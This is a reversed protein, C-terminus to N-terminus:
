LVFDSLNKLHHVLVREHILKQLQVLDRHVFIDQSLRNRKEDREYIEQPIVERVANYALQTGVGLHFAKQFRRLDIGQTACLLECALINEINEIISRAQRAAISGMSVHDEQNASTPITTVSAPSSLTQNEASLAAATIQALGLGYHVGQNESKPYLLLLPLGFSLHNDILRAIRREALNGVSTMATSLLDMAIAIPQGHFNGGSLFSQSEPFILPNDTASNLEITVVNKVYDTADRAAGLVQPTCRLSYADQVRRTNKVVKIAADLLEKPLQLRNVLAQLAEIQNTIHPNDPELNRQQKFQLLSKSIQELIAQETILTEDAKEGQLQRFQNLAYDALEQRQKSPLVLDSNKLLTRLNQASQIQGPHPRIEHIQPQFPDIVGELAEISLAAAIEATILCNEADAVALAAIATMIQTGNILAIGEKNELLIPQLKARKLAEKGTILDGRFEAYGEGILVLAMHALPALDGSAGVSGQSPLIPHVGKNLLALLLDLTSNRIGSYGKALTNARLLMAARVIETPFPPGVGAAHSILLNRQLERAKHDPIVVESHPGFGTTVGYIVKGAKVWKTILSVTKDIRKRAAHSLKVPINQRAVSVVDSITLSEGDISISSQSM